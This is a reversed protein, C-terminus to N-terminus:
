VPNSDFFTFASTARTNTAEAYAHGVQEFKQAGARGDLFNQRIIWEELTLVDEGSDFVGGVLSVM